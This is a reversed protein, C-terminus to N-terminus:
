RIVSRTSHCPRPLPMFKIRAFRSISFNYDGIFSSKSSSLGTYFEKELWVNIAKVALYKMQIDVM